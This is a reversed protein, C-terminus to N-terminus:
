DYVKISDKLPLHYVSFPDNIIQQNDGDASYFDYPLLAIQFIGKLFLDYRGQNLRKEVLFQVQKPIMWYMYNCHYDIAALHLAYTTLEWHSALLEKVIKVDKLLLENCNQFMKVAVITYESDDLPIILQSFTPIPYSTIPETDDNIKCFLKMVDVKEYVAALEILIANDLWTIFSLLYIKLSSPHSCKFLKKIFKDTFLKINHADSAMLTRCKDALFEIDATHLQAALKDIM